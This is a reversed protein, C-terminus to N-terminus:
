MRCATDSVETYSCGSLVEKVVSLVEKGVCARRLLFKAEGLEHSRLWSHGGSM